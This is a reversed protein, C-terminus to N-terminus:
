YWNPDSRLQELLMRRIEENPDGLWRLSAHESPARDEALGDPVQVYLAYADDDQWEFAVYVRQAFCNHAECVQGVLYRDSDVEVVQISTSPGSLNILWDPLRQEDSLLEQWAERYEANSGLLEAPLFAADHDAAQATLVGGLLLAAVTVNLRQM